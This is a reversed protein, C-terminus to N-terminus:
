KVLKLYCNCQMRECIRETEPKSCISDADCLRWADKNSHAIKFIHGDLTVLQGPKYKKPTGSTTPSKM